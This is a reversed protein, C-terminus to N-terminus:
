EGFDIINQYAPSDSPFLAPPDIRGNTYDDWAFLLLYRALQSAPVGLRVSESRIAEKLDAGIDYTVRARLREVPTQRKPRPPESSPPHAATEENAAQSTAMGQLQAM